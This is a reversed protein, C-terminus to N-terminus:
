SAGWSAPPNNVAEQTIAKSFIPNISNKGLLDMGYEFPDIVSLKEVPQLLYIDNKLTPTAPITPLNEITSLDTVTISNDTNIIGKDPFNYLPTPINSKKEFLRQVDEVVSKGLNWPWALDNKITEGTM